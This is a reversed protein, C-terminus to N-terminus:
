FEKVGGLRGKTLPSSYYSEKGRKETVRTSEKRNHCHAFLLKGMAALEM